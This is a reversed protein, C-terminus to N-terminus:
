HQHDHCGGNSKHHHHLGFGLLRTITFLAIWTGIGVSIIGDIWYQGDAILMIVGGIIVAVSASIDSLLHWDQWLHTINRHEDPADHHIKWLLLNVLLGIFAIVIMYWEVKHPNSIREMGEHIIWLSAFLLLMASITGGIKRVRDEDGQRAFRSVIASVFNEAGDVLVHLADSMLALSGSFWGGLFESVFLCLSWKALTLYRSEESSCSCDRETGTRLAPCANLHNGEM